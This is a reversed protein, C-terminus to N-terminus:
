LVDAFGRKSKMFFAYGLQMVVLGSALAIALARWDPSGGFLAVQRASEFVGALPNMSLVTQVWAPAKSMRAAPYLIPTMFFFIQVVVPVITRMDRLFVGLSAVFFSCGAAWLLIPLIVLPLAWLAPSLTGRLLLNATLLVMLSICMLLLSALLSAVPLVELPFIVKKVFNPNNVIVGPANNVSASFVEFMVLGCFMALAFTSTKEDPAGVWKAEWVIAFVFTYVGLMILPHLLTWFIGLASGRNRAAVDRAAFQWILSRKSWLNAWMALPNLLQGLTLPAGVRHLTPPSTTSLAISVDFTGAVKQRQPSEPLRVHVFL